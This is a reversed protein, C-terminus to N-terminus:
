QVESKYDGLSFFYSEESGTDEDSHSAFNSTLKFRNNQISLHLDCKLMHM